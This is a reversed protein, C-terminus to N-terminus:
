PYRVIIGKLNVTKTLEDRVAEARSHLLEPGVLVRYHLQGEVRGPLVFAAFGHSRVRDRLKLANGKQSLSALQIAWSAASPGGSVAGDRDGDATRIEGLRQQVSIDSEKESPAKDTVRPPDTGAPEMEVPTRATLKSEAMPPLPEFELVETRFSDPRPPIIDGRSDKDHDQRLDVFVPIIIAVLALLVIAGTIRYRWTM